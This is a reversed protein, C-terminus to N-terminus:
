PFDQPTKDKIYELESRLFEGQASNLLFTIMNAREVAPMVAGKYDACICFESNSDVVVFTESDFQSVSYKPEKVAQTM